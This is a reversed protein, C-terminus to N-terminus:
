KAAKERDIGVAAMARRTVRIADLLADVRVADRKKVSKAMEKWALEIVQEMQALAKAFDADTQQALLNPALKSGVSAEKIDPLGKSLIM